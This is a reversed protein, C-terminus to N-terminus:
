TWGEVGKSGEIRRDWGPLEDVGHAIEEIGVRRRLYSVTTYTYDRICICLTDIHIYMCYIYMYIDIHVYIRIHM